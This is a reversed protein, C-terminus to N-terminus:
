PTEFELVLNPPGDFTEPMSFTYSWFEFGHAPSGEGGNVGAFEMKYDKNVNGGVKIGINPIDDLNRLNPNAHFTSVILTFVTDGNGDPYTM